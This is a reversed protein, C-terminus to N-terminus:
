QTRHGGLQVDRSDRILERRVYLCALSGTPNRRTVVRQEIKELAQAIEELTELDIRCDGGSRYHCIDDDLYHNLQQRHKGERGFLDFLPPETPARCTYM